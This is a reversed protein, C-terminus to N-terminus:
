SISLSRHQRTVLKYRWRGGGQPVPGDLPVACMGCGIDVGVANPCVYERSALVSGVTAGMGLHVDPMAAVFGVAM